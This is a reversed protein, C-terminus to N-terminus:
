EVIRGPINGELGEPVIFAATGIPRGRPPDTVLEFFGGQGGHRLSAKFRPDKTSLVIKM